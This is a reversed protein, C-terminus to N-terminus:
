GVEELAGGAEDIGIPFCDLCDNGVSRGDGDCIGKPGAQRVGEIPHADRLKHPSAAEAM